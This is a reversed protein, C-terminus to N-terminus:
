WIVKINTTSSALQFQVAIGVKSALRNEALREGRRKECMRTERYHISGYSQLCNWSNFWVIGHLEMFQVRRNSSIGQISGHSKM